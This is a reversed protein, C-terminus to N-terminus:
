GTKERKQIQQIYSNIMEELARQTKNDPNIFVLRKSDSVDGVCKTNFHIRAKKPDKELKNVIIITFDSILFEKPIADKLKVGSISINESESRFTKGKKTILIIEIAFNYRIGIRRDASIPADAKAPEFSSGTSHADFSNSKLRGRLRTIDPDINEAKFDPYFYGYDIKKNSDEKKVETFNPKPEKVMLNDPDLPVLVTKEFNETITTATASSRIAM